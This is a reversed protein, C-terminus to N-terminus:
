FNYTLGLQSGWQEMELTTGAGMQSFGDGTGADEVTNKPAWYASFGLELSDTFKYSAGLTLHQEVVAPFLVNAFVHESDIPSEGYNYGARLTLDEDWRHQMGISFVHVNKWGFGGREGPNDGIARVDSWMVNKADLALDTSPHVKMVVGVGAQAPSNLPGGFINKYSNPRNYWVPSRYNAALSWIDGVDWVGGLQFGAGYMRDKHGAVGSNTASFDNALSDTKIDAYSLIVGVGYSSWNNPSYAMSPQLGFQRFTVTHDMGGKALGGAVSGTRPHEWDTAGGGVPFFALNVGWEPSLRYNIGFSGDLFNSADSEQPGRGCNAGATAGGSCAGGRVTAHVDAGMWGVSVHVNDGMRAALAPNVSTSVADTALAMGAGGMGCKATGACYPLMGNTASAQNAGFSVAGAVMMSFFSIGRLNAIAM